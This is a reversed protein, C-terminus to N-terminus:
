NKFLFRKGKQDRGNLAGRRERKFLTAVVRSPVKFQTTKRLCVHQKEQKFTRRKLLGSPFGNTYKTAMIKRTGCLEAFTPTRILKFHKKLYLIAHRNEIRPLLDVSQSSTFGWCLRLGEWVGHIIQSGRMEYSTQSHEAVRLCGCSLQKWGFM